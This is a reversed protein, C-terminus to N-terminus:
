CMSTIENTKLMKQIKNIDKIDSLVWDILVDLKDSQKYM